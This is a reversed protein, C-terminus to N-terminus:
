DDEGRKEVTTSTEVTRKVREATDDHRETVEVIEVSEKVVEAGEGSKEVIWYHEHRKTVREITRDAHDIAVAFQVPSDRLGSYGERDLSLLESCDADACECVFAVRAHGHFWASRHENEERARGENQALRAERSDGTEDSGMDELSDQICNHFGIM